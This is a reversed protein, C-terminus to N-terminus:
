AFGPEDWHYVCFREMDYSVYLFPDKFLHRVEFRAQPCRKKIERVIAIAEKPVLQGRGLFKGLPTVMWKADRKPQEKKDLPNHLRDLMRAEYDEVEDTDFILVGTTRLTHELPARKQLVRIENQDLPRFLKPTLEVVAPTDLDLCNM